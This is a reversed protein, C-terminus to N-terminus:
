RNREGAVRLEEVRDLPMHGLLNLPLHKRCYFQESKDKLHVVCEAKDTCVPNRCLLNDSRPINYILAM